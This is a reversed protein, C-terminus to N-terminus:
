AAKQKLSAIKRDLDAISDNIAGINREYSAINANTSGASSEVALGNGSRMAKADRLCGEFHKLEVGM